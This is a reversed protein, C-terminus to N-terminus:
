WLVGGSLLLYAIGAGTLVAMTAFCIIRDRINKHICLTTIIVEAICFLTTLLHFPFHAVMAGVYGVGMVAVIANGIGLIIAGIPNQKKCFYAIFGGPLTLLTSTLWFARYYYFAKDFGITPVEVLFVVPQSILFFVFCKLAAEWSRTCNVVVIIAFLVWWEYTVAIDRFSTDELFPVQNILGTYVGTIVAFIIVKLWSMHINGFLNKVKNM